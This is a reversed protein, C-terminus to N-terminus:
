YGTCDCRDYRDIISYDSDDLAKDQAKLITEAWFSIERHSHNLFLERIAEITAERVLDNLYM